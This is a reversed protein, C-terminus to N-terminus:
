KKKKIKKNLEEIIKDIGIGHEALGQELTERDAMPCGMCHMGCEMLYPIIEPYKSVVESITMTKTIKQKKTKM